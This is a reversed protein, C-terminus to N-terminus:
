LLKLKKKKKKFNFQQLHALISSSGTLRTHDEVVRFQEAEASATSSTWCFDLDVVSFLGSDYFFFFNKKKKFLLLLLLAVLLHHCITTRSCRRRRCGCWCRGSCCCNCCDVGISSNWWWSSHSVEESGEVVDDLLLGFGHNGNLYWRCASILQIKKCWNTEFTSM